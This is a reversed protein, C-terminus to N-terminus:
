SVPETTRQISINSLVGSAELFAFRLPLSADMVPLVKDFTGNNYLFRDQAELGTFCGNNSICAGTGDLESLTYRIRVADGNALGYNSVPVTEGAAVTMRNPNTITGTVVDVIIGGTIDTFRTLDAMEPGDWYVSRKTWWDYDHDANFLTADHGSDNLEPITDNNLRCPPVSFRYVRSNHPIFAQHSAPVYNHWVGNNGNVEPVEDDHEGSLDFQRSGDAFTVVDSGDGPRNHWTGDFAPGTDVDLNTIVDGNVGSLDFRYVDSNAKTVVLNGIAVANPVAASGIHTLTVTDSITLEVRYRKDQSVEFVTSGYVVDDVKLQSLTASNYSLTNDANISLLFEDNGSALIRQGIGVTTAALDFEVIDGASLPVNVEGYLAVGDGQVVSEGALPALDRIVMDSVAGYGYVTDHRHMADVVFDGAALEGSAQEIGDISISYTTGVRKCLLHYQQGDILTYTTELDPGSPPYFRVTHTDSSVFVRCTFTNSQGIPRNHGTADYILDFEFEFDGALTIAPFEAWLNIADGQVVNEHQIPAHDTFKVFHILGDAYNGDAGNNRGISDPNFREPGINVADTSGDPWIIAGTSDTVDIRFAGTTVTKDIVTNATGINIWWQTGGSHFYIYDGPDVAKGFVCGDPQLGTIDFEVSYNAGLPSWEPMAAYANVGNFHLSASPWRSFITPSVKSVIKQELHSHPQLRRTPM